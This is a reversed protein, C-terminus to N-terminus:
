EVAFPDEAVHDTGIIEQYCIRMIVRGLMGVGNHVSINQCGNTLMVVGTRDTPDFYAACLMGNAKGGHGYMTRGQVQDDTIINLFLGNGSECAVSGTFDQRTIIQAATSEKLIRANQYIGGDCLAILLRALDPASIILKGATQWYHTEPDAAETLSVDERLRKALQRQPMHFLDAMPVTQPILAPQYAATIELPAFVHEAMYADLTQGSLKEILTGILGGGFNSYARRHGPKWNHFTYEARQSFLEKLGRPQGNLAEQYDGSDRLAATHTMLQRLTIPLNPYLPHRVPYGLVDGIEADLAIGRQELLQMLGINSVMKSISGVQFVTDPTIPDGGIRADGYCYTYTIEGNQIVAVCAGLTSYRQFGAALKQEATPEALASGCLMLCLILAWFRKYM